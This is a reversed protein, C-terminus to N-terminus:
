RIVEVRHPAPLAAWARDATLVMAGRELGLALCARDGLSLGLARTQPRLEATTLAHAATFPITLVELAAVDRLVDDPREGKEAFKSAIECLNISSLLAGALRGQVAQWGEERLLFTMVASADLVVPAFLTM